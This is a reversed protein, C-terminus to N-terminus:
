VDVKALKAVMLDDLDDDSLILRITPILNERGHCQFFPVPISWTTKDLFKTQHPRIILDRNVRRAFRTRGSLDRISGAYAHQPQGPWTCISREAGSCRRASQAGSRFHTQILELTPRLTSADVPVSPIQPDHEDRSRRRMISPYPEVNRIPEGRLAM